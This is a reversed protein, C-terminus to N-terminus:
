NWSTEGPRMLPEALIVAHERDGDVVARVKPANGAVSRRYQVAIGTGMVTFRIFAGQKEAMWGNRFCDTIDKQPTPDEEFGTM